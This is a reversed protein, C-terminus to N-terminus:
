DMLGGCSLVRSYRIWIFVEGKSRFVFSGSERRRIRQSCHQGHSKADPVRLADGNFCRLVLGWGCHASDRGDEAHSPWRRSDDRRTNGVILRRCWRCWRNYGDCQHRILRTINPIQALPNITPHTQPQTLIHDPGYRHPSTLQLTPLSSPDCHRKILTLQSLYM